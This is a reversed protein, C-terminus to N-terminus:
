SAGFIKSYRIIIEERQAEVAAPDSKMLKIARLSARIPRDKVLAHFSCLGSADVLLQQAELSFLFSQFLRAANPHPASQFIGSPATILPTGEKAAGM